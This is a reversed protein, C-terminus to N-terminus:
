KLLVMKMTKSFRDTQIRYLYMGASVPEGLNNSADWITTKFGPEQIGNVLHRIERGMIDYIMISVHAQEPLDYNITTVPNFPNPYNQHLAFKEPILDMPDIALTGVVIRNVAGANSQTSLEDEDIAMVWWFYETDNILTVMTTIEDGTPIMVFTSSDAVNTAYVLTYSVYDIPDPDTTRDWSFTIEEALGEASDAPSVTNFALPPEPYLDTWFVAEESHNLDNQRDLSIVWWSFLSNDALPSYPIAYNADTLVSDVFDHGDRLWHLEYHVSDDPDPDFAATWHFEPILTLVIVSDPSILNVASPAENQSNITFSYYGGTNETMAGSLDTAVVKWYYTTNDSLSTSVQYSTATDVSVMQLDPIATGYYLTYRVTDIPDPDIAVEWDLLPTLATVEASDAPSLLTFTDPADNEANLIFSVATSFEGNEFGDNARARWWYQFNDSLSTTIQWSTSDTGGSVNYSSDSITAFLEDTALQFDYSLNDSEADSGNLIFLAPTNDTLISGDVPSLATPAAPTSNMRITLESYNSPISSATVVQLRAYYTTGDTLANGSYVVSTDASSVVGSDWMDITSYNADSSIQIQYSGQATSLPDYYSWVFAPTHNLTHMLDTEDTVTFNSLIPLPTDGIIVTTQQNPNMRSIVKLVQGDQGQIIDNINDTSVATYVTGRFLGSTESSEILTKIVTDQTMTNIVWAVALGKSLSDTDAGALEIHLTDGPDINETLSIQYTSDTKLSISTISSPSGVLTDGPALLFPTYDAVYINFQPDDNFDYILSDIVTSSKTGWYNNEIDITSTGGSLFKLYYTTNNNIFANNNGVFQGSILTTNLFTSDRGNEAFYSSLLNIGNNPDNNYILQGDINDSYSKNGFFYNNSGSLVKNGSTRGEIMKIVSTGYISYNNIFKCNDIIFEKNTDDEYWYCVGGSYGSGNNIFTSNYFSFLNQGWHGYYVGGQNSATNQKFFSNTATFGGGGISNAYFVGGQNSATNQLFNSNHIQHTGSNSYGGGTSGCIVGGRGANNDKFLSNYYIYTGECGWGGSGDVKIAGGNSASNNNFVCNVIYHTIGCSSSYIAGGSSASNDKFVSNKVMFSVNEYSLVGGSGTTLFYKFVCYDFVSGSVYTTDNQVTSGVAGSAFEIGETNTVTSTDTVTFYISDTETGQAILTGGNLVRLYVDQSFLVTVEPDITLTVGDMIVTNATITYPSGSLDWTTNSSITGSVDTQGFGFTTLFITTITTKLITKM